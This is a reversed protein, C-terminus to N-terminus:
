FYASPVYLSTALSTVETGAAGRFYENLTGELTTEDSSQINIIITCRQIADSMMM